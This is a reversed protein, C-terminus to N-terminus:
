RIGPAAHGSPLGPRCAIGRCARWSRRSGRVAAAPGPGGPGPALGFAREALALVAELGTLGDPPEAAGALGPERALPGFRGPDSGPWYPPVSAAARSDGRRGGRLWPSNLKGIDAHLAV